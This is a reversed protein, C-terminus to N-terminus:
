GFDEATSVGKMQLIWGEIMDLVVASPVLPRLAASPFLAQHLHLLGQQQDLALMAVRLEPLALHSLSDLLPPLDQLHQWTLSITCTSKETTTGQSM